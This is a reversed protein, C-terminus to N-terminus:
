FNRTGTSVHQDHHHDYYFDISTMANLLDISLFGPVIKAMTNIFLFCVSVSCLLLFPISTRARAGLM